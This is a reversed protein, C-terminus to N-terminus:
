IHNIDSARIGLINIMMWLMRLETEARCNGPFNMLFRVLGNADEGNAREDAENRM